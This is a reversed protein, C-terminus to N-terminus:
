HKQWGIEPWCVIRGILQLYTEELQGSSSILAELSTIVEYKKYCLPPFFFGETITLLSKQPSFYWKMELRYRIDIDTALAVETIWEILLEALAIWEVWSEKLKQRLQSYREDM